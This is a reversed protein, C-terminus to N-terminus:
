TSGTPGQRDPRGPPLLPARRHRRGLGPELVTEGEHLEAMATPQWLGPQGARRHRAAPRPRHRRVARGRDWAARGGPLDLAAALRGLADRRLAYYAWTGRQGRALLGAQVLKKLHHSVSPQSLGLPETFECACVPDPSTALLNVIKVRHPDALARFVRATAEAQDDSLSAAGLPCLLTNVPPSLQDGSQGGTGAIPRLHARSHARPRQDRRGGSNRWSSV